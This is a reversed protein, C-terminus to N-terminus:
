AFPSAIGSSGLQRSIAAKLRSLGAESGSEARAVLVPQTNSARLLWWGDATNVRVGDITDVEGADPAALLRQKVEDIVAFKRQEPCDIRVEPTNVLEPMRDRIDALSEDRAAVLGILRVAAYLGDDFGYYRDAFFLHGSMEGALPAQTEAMKAKLLSHGTMWMLPKGGLEAIRDFLMQSAKVDAIVTAGPRTALVEEAYISLLQDGWIIRGRGDVAGLRDGDGDFAVGLDCGNDRVAAQLQVLNEAVTPDPHHNPFTGDIAENLLIHTGPLRAALRQMIAGASGNGADWAVTLGRGDGYGAVLADVYADSVDRREDSGAGATWDGDGAIRGLEQIDAGFFSAKGIMMKFGNMDPPNHSGTVMIGGALDLSRVAFYLMPTPGLGVRVARGGADAIGRVVAAEFGPSSQRGDYGVAIAPSANGGRRAVITAFGRGIAYADAEALDRGVTGRIDYERLVTPDFRHSQPPM